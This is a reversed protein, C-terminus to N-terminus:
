SLHDGQEQIECAGAFLDDLVGDIREHPILGEFDPSTNIDLELRLHTKLAGITANRAGSVLVVRQYAGVSWKSLRNVQLNDVGARSARPRNVQYHFDTADTGRPVADILRSLEDYGTQRDPTEAVLVFGLALRQTAPFLESQAWHHALRLFAEASAPFSGVVAMADDDSTRNDAEFLWDIRMPQVQLTLTGQEFPGSDRKTATGRQFTSTEPEQDLVLRWLAEPVVTDPAVFVTLRCSLVQWDPM